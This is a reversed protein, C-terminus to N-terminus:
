IQPTVEQNLMTDFGAGNKAERSQLEWPIRGIRGMRGELEWVTM